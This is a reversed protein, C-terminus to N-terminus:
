SQTTSTPDLGQRFQVDSNLLRRKGLDGALKLMTSFIYKMSKTYKRASHYNVSCKPHYCRKESLPLSGHRASKNRPRRTLNCKKFVTWIENNRPKRRAKIHLRADLTGWPALVHAADFWDVGSESVVCKPNLSTGLASFSPSPIDNEIV